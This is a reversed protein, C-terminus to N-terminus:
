RAFLASIYYDYCALRIRSVIPLRREALRHFSTLKLQIFLSLIRGVKGEKMYKFGESVSELGKPMLKIPLTVLKGTALLKSTLDAAWRGFEKDNPTPNGPVPLM